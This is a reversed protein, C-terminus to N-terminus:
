IHCDLNVLYDDRSNNLILEFEKKWAEKTILENHSGFWGYELRSHYKGNRDVISSFTNDYEYKELFENIHIGNNPCKNFLVNRKDISYYDFITNPNYSSLINGDEDVLEYGCYEDRYKELTNYREDYETSQRYKEYEKILDEYKIDIYPIVAHNESYPSMKDEIYESIAEIGQAFIRKPIVILLIFHTM